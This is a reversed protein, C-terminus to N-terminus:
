FYKNGKFGNKQGLIKDKYLIFTLRSGLSFIITHNYDCQQKVWYVKIVKSFSGGDWPREDKEKTSGQFYAVYDYRGNLDDM